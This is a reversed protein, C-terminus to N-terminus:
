RRQKRRQKRDVMKILDKNVLCDVLRQRGGLGGAKGTM